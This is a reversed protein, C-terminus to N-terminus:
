RAPASYGIWSLVSSWHLMAQNKEEGQLAWIRQAQMLVGSWRQPPPVAM